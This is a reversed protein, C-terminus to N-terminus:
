LHRGRKLKNQRTQTNPHELTNTRDLTKTESPIKERIPKRIPAPKIFPQFGLRAQIAPASYNSGLDTITFTTKASLDVLHLDTPAGRPDFTPIAALHNQRLRDLFEQPTTPKARIADDLIWKTYNIDTPSLTNNAEFRPELNKLTPKFPLNSAKIPKNRPRGDEGLVQYLLGRHEHTLTGPSGAKATLNYLRLIANLEGLSRFRYNEVVYKVTDSIAQWTLNKGYQIKERPDHRPMDTPSFRALNYKREMERVAPQLRTAGIFSEPIRDGNPRIKTSAIHMHQHFTDDHRYLLYPQSGFGVAEMIDRTIDILKDDPHKEGPAFELVISVASRHTQPNLATLDAIRTKKEKITLDKADKLFNGAYICEAEQNAIKEENYYLLYNFGLNMNISAKM